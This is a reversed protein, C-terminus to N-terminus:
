KKWAEVQGRLWDTWAEMGEGTKACIPIIKAGPNRMHVYEACKEMDFDFYPLVDIKNVLVVDCVQFM